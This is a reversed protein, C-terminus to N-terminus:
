QFASPCIMGLVAPLEGELFALCLQRCRCVAYLFIKSTAEDMADSVCKAMWAHTMPAGNGAEARESLAARRTDSAEKLAAYREQNKDIRELLEEHLWAIATATDGPIALDSRFSRVPMSSFM